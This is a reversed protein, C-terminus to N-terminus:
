KQQKISFLHYLDHLHFFSLYFSTFLCNNFSLRRGNWESWHTWLVLHKDIAIVNFWDNLSVSFFSNFQKLWFFSFFLFNFGIWCVIPWAEKAILKFDDVFGYEFFQDSYIKLKENLGSFMVLKSLSFYKVYNMTNDLINLTSSNFYFITRCWFHRYICFFIFKFYNM